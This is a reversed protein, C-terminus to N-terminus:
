CERENNLPLICAATMQRAFDGQLDYLQDTLDANENKAAELEAETDALKKALANNSRTLEDVRRIMKAMDWMTYTPQLEKVNM